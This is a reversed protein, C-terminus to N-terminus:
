GDSSFGPWARIACHRSLRATECRVVFVRLVSFGARGIFGTDVDFDTALASRFEVERDFVVGAELFATVSGVEWRAGGVIRWDKFQARTSQRIPDVEVQYAEVHFEGATYLWTPVGLPTGVFVSIGPSPSCCGSNGTTTPLGSPVPTPCFLTM